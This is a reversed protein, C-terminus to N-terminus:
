GGRRTCTLLVCRVRQVVHVHRLLPHQAQGGVGLQQSGQLGDQPGVEEQEVGAEDGLVGRGLVLVGEDGPVLVDPLHRPPKPPNKKIKKIKKIKKKKRSIVTM